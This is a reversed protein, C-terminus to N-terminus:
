LSMHLMESGQVDETCGWSKGGQGWGWAVVSWKMTGMARNLTVRVNQSIGITM